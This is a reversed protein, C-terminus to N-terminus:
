KAKKTSISAAKLQPLVAEIWVLDVMKHKGRGEIEEIFANADADEVQTRLQGFPALPATIPQRGQEDLPGLKIQQQERDTFRVLKLVNGLSTLKGLPAEVSGLYNQIGVRQAFDLSLDKM